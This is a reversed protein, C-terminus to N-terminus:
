QRNEENFCTCSRTYYEGGSVRKFKKEDSLSYNANNPQVIVSKWVQPRLAKLVEVSRYKGLLGAAKLAIHMHVRETRNKCNISTLLSPM